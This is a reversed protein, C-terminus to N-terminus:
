QLPTKKVTYKSAVEDMGMRTLAEVADAAREIWAPLHEAEAPTFPTLVYDAVRNRDGPHGIGM